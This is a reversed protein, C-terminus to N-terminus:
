KVIAIDTFATHTVGPFEVKIVCRYVGTGVDTCDWVLENDTGGATPGSLQSVKVGSMDFIDFEVSRAEAGLYYRIRTEDDRVPNPYNYFRSEDFETTAAQVAALKSADFRYSGSPVAGNMMWFDHETEADAYWAYFWGDGGLYGVEGDVGDSYKVASSGSSYRQQEGSSLPYGYSLGGSGHSYFNGVSNPFLLEPGGGDEIDVMVPDAIVPSEPFRDDVEIPSNTKLLLEDNFAIVQNVGGVVIEPYGDLDFDGAVPDTTIPYGTDRRALVTYSPAAATEDLSLYVGTGDRTFMVLEETGDRDVDVLIPGYVFAGDLEYSYADTATIYRIETPGSTSDGLMVIMAADTLCHGLYLRDTLDIEDVFPVFQASTEQLYVRAKFDDYGVAITWLAGDGFAMAIPYGDTVTPTGVLDAMGDVNDDTPGYFAVRGMTYSYQYGVAILKTDDGAGLRGTVPGALIRNPLQAYIPVQYVSAPNQDTGRHVSTSVTDFVDECSVCPHLQRIFNEGTATAVVLRKDAGIIFEDTGDGDLDDVLPGPVQDSLIIATVSDTVAIPLSPAGVRVPFGEVSRDFDLNFSIYRDDRQETETDILRGIDEVYIHTQNGSNDVTPPNTKPAFNTQRDDRFLDEPRGYGSRYNGGFQVIGDAEVLSIFKRENIWWQLDNDDFNNIGDGDYDLGAVAEDVHYVALGSGPMLFDYEGTPAKTSDVPGQIVSTVQDALVYTTHNDVEDLRNEILYYENETIPIRVIKTGDSGTLEAAEIVVDDTDTRLDVTEAFGLFARSWACPFLPIAGFVRGAPWGFDIGTGFGNNDMLAFDGLQSMFTASSYLDVLGLQHGFEHALLANMATARNDQVTTEPMMLGDSVSNSDGDVLVEGGFRIYGSFLDSCTPPFGVDTQADAGAHFLFFADYAAFDIEPNVSDALSICDIFYNELGEVVESFDCKGYYSMPHPLEYVEERAPPYIDWTLHVQGGSVTEWYKNLAQLHADFYLSDHPPPDTLHGERAIYEEDTLTDLPRSLDMVGRGTTNPDDTDEYQFNYRLVLCHITTDFEAGQAGLQERRKAIADGLRNPNGDPTLCRHRVYNPAAETTDTVRDGKFLKDASVGPVALATLGLLCGLIRIYTSTRGAM